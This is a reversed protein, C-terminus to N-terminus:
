LNALRKQGGALDGENNIEMVCLIFTDKLAGLRYKVNVEQYDADSSLAAFHGLTPYHVFAIEDWGDAKAQKAVVNGVLKVKGGHKSGVRATFENGYQQYQEKKGPNFALLNLMSVPHSRLGLPLAQLYNVLEPSLELKQASSSAAPTPLHAPDVPEAVLSQLQGNLSAYERVMASPIGCRASWSAAIQTDAERPLSASTELFILLDWHHNYALLPVRSLTTPLIMWRLVRAQSLPKVGHQRLTSLFHRTSCGSVLAIIYLDCAPM